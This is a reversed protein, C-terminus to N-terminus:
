DTPPPSRFRYKDIGLARLKSELTQRPMGLKAAAGAPGGIRGGSAELASEIMERERQDIARAFPVAAGGPLPAERKLWAEDVGFTDGESLIVAREVVNQLERVNGPWDYAQFLALTRKEIKRIRKGTKEAYRQILYEVLLPIDDVRERLSPLRIPFVNLRYYLDQRFARAAVAAPLDRHTAAVVRVDVAIPQHSGVREIEHEQLVRLLAVQADGPLDGIEDLLLTGGSAAEFRGLHRQLAGTFAGKEHGFLESAILSAPIAACNVRIFAQAARKSRKHIARAILEKGTGTEGLILVTSDAPAVQAVLTLVRRLSASSGVIEEFMSSRDIDERLALNENRTRDEAQKRDDIDTGTVYWRVIRGHEDLLPNHSKLFWRYRGDKGISREELVFPQGRAVAQQRQARHAELDDPHTTRERFDGRRVDDMTLGTYELVKANAHTPRGDPDLAVIHHPIADTIARLEREDRRLAEEARKRDEIDTNTGYWKVIAGTEPDRLPACRLLFWRYEGDYRRMRVETDVPEGSAVIARWTEVYGPNDDPHVAHQWGWGRSTEADLGTYDLWRQNQFQAVGDADTCWAQIPITDITQRLEAESRTVLGFAQELAERAAREATIDRIVAQVQGDSAWSISVEVLLDTGDTRRFQREFRFPSGAAVQQYRADYGAREGPVYTDTIHLTRAHDLTCRLLALGAPNVDILMGDLGIVFMAEPSLEFLAHSQSDSQHLGGQAACM